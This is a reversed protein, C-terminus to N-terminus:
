ADDMALAELGLLGELVMETDPAVFQLQGQVRFIQIRTDGIFMYKIRQIQSALTILIQSAQSDLAFKPKLGM